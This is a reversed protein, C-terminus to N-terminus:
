TGGGVIPSLFSFWVVLRPLPGEPPISPVQSCVEKMSVLGLVSASGPRAPKPLFLPPPSAGVNKAGFYTFNNM